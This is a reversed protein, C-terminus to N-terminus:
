AGSLGGSPLPFLHHQARLLLHDPNFWGLDQSPSDYYQLANLLQSFESDKCLFGWTIFLIRNLVCIADQKPVLFFLFVQKKGDAELLQKMEPYLEKLKSVYVIEVRMKEQIQLIVRKLVTLLLLIM